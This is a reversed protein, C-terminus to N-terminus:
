ELLKFLGGGADSQDAHARACAGGSFDRGAWPNEALGVTPSASAAVILLIICV